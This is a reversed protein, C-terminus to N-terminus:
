AYIYGRAIVQRPPHWVLHRLPCLELILVCMSYFLSVYMTSHPCVYLLILVCMHSTACPAQSSYSSVYITSHPCMDYFSSVHITSHPCMHYFSSVCLTSSVCIRPPVLPRARTHHCAYLLEMASLHCKYLVILVCMYSTACPAYSSYSSM